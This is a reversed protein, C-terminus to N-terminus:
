RTNSLAQNLRRDRETKDLEALRRCAEVFASLQHDNQVLIANFAPVMGNYAGVAGIAANNVDSAMWSAFGADGDWASRMAEYDQKMAAIIEAKRRRKEDADLDTSYLTSLRTRTRLILAIVQQRRDETVLYAEFSGSEGQRALWQKLAQREFTTAYSENFTTDSGVYVLRHALEHFILAALRTDNRYLFTDLVPDAFWGLTSYAAVGGVYVDYGDRRFAAAAQRADDQQYFGRYNVCGAIPYCFTKMQLSFEPAAFLNWVVYRRGTSVYSEYADGVTIGLEDRAFARVDQVLKLKRRVEPPTEADDIVQEVPRSKSWLKMHGSIAQSYYALSACGSGLVVWILIMHAIILRKFPLSFSISWKKGSATRPPDENNSIASFVSKQHM